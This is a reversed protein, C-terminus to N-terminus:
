HESAEREVGPRMEKEMRVSTYLISMGVREYLRTAGTLSSADVGLTVTTQGRRWFEAFAHTIMAQALGKKRYARRVGIINIYGQDPKTPERPDCLVLGAIEGTADDIALYWTTADFRSNKEIRDKWMAIVQAQPRAVYGYHDQWIEDQAIAMAELDAPYDFTRLTLGEPLGQVVPAAQFTISMHYFHRINRYGLSTLLAHQPTGESCDTVPAFREEPQCRELARLTKQEGWAMLVRLVAEWHDDILMEWNIWPHTPDHHNWVEVHAVIEGQPNFFSQSSTVIDWLPYQWRRTIEESTVVYDEGRADSAECFLRAIDAADELTAARQSYGAPLGASSDIQTLSDSTM